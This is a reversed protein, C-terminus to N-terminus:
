KSWALYGPLIINAIPVFFLLSLAGPKGLAECVKWWMMIMVVINLLPVFLGLLWWGSMGGCELLLWINAIPVWALWKPETGTKKAIASICLALYVYVAAMVVFWILFMGGFMALPILAGLMELAM